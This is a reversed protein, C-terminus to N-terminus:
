EEEDLVLEVILKLWGEEDDGGIRWVDDASGGRWWVDVKGSGLDTGRFEMWAVGGTM